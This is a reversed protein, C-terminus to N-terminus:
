RPAMSDSSITTPIWGWVAPVASWLLLAVASILVIRAGTSAVLLLWSRIAVVRSPPSLQVKPQDSSLPAVSTPRFM